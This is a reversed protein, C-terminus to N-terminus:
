RRGSGRVTRSKGREEMARFAFLWSDHADLRDAAGHEPAFIQDGSHMAHPVSFVSIRFYTLLPVVQPAAIMRLDGNPLSPPRAGLSARVSGVRPSKGMLLGNPHDFNCMAAIELVVSHIMVPSQNATVPSQSNQAGAGISPRMMNLLFDEETDKASRFGFRRAQAVQRPMMFSTLM